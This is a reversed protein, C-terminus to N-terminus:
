PTNCRCDNINLSCKYTYKFTTQTYKNIKKTLTNAVETQMPIREPLTKVPREHGVSTPSTRAPEALEKRLAM